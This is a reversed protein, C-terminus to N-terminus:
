SVEARNMISLLMLAIYKKLSVGTGIPDTCSTSNCAFGGIPGQRVIVAGRVSASSWADAYGSCLM